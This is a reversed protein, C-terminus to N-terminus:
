RPTDDHPSRIPGPSSDAGHGAFGHRVPSTRARWEVRDLQPRQPSSSWSPASLRMVGSTVAAAAAVTRAPRVTEHARASSVPTPRRCGSVRHGVVHDARRGLAAARVVDGQGGVAEGGAVDVGEAVDEVLPRDEVAVRDLRDGGVAGGAQADVVELRADHGPAHQEVDRRQAADVGELRTLGDEGLVELRGLCPGAQATRAPSASSTRVPRQRQRASCPGQSAPWGPPRGPRRTGPRPQASRSTAVRPLSPTESTRGERTSPTTIGIWVTAMTAM